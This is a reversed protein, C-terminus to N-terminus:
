RVAYVRTAGSEFALPLGRVVADDFAALQREADGIVIYRARSDNLLQQRRALDITSNYIEEVTSRKDFFAVTQAWHALYAHSDTLVPVYQGFSMSSLVVDQPGANADLWRLAEIDGRTLYYDYTHRALDTFRWTLLYLNTPVIALLFAAAVLRRASAENRGFRRRVWPMIHGTLLRTALIAMPVQWGNLMHIQYDAPLYILVFSIVFWGLILLEADSLLERSGETSQRAGPLRRLDLVAMVCAAVFTFGLLMPLRYLPPTYVGANAFQALVQEWLPDLRTLLVSYLAPPVSIVGVLILDIVLRPRIMRDRLMLLACYAGLVAWVIILDYAHQWGMFQAFLGCAIILARRNERVGRVFLEFCWIYVAAALFHPFGIASLFTNGEAVYVDLPNILEGNTVTYKLVILVWGFGSTTCVILLALMRNFVDPLALACIRYATIVFFTIGLVRMVQYMAAYGLGFLGGLQALSWWLLNFFLAQNPEPTMRNNIVPSEGFGRFWMFYQAHDPVNMVIGMFHKDAPTSLYGFLAPLSTIVLLAATILLVIRWETKSIAPLKQTSPAPMAM